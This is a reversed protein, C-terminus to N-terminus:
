KIGNLDTGILLKTVCDLGEIEERGGALRLRLQQGGAQRPRPVPPCREAAWFDAECLGSPPPPAKCLPM